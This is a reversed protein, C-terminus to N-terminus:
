SHALMQWALLSLSEFHIAHTTDGRKAIDPLLGKSTEASRPRADKSGGSQKVVPLASSSQARALIRSPVTETQKAALAPLKKVRESSPILNLLATPVEWQSEGTTQNFFWVDGNEEDRVEVWAGKAEHELRRMEKM